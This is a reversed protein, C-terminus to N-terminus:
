RASGESAVDEGVLIDDGDGQEDIGNPGVSYLDWGHRHIPGPCRYIIPHNWADMWVVSRYLRDLRNIAGERVSIFANFANQGTPDESGGSARPAPAPLLTDLGGAMHDRLGASLVTLKATTTSRKDAAERAERAARATVYAGAAALPVVFVLAFCGLRRPEKV